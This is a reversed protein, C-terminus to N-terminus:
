LFKNNNSPNLLDIFSGTVSGCIFSAGLIFGIPLPITENILFNVKTKNDSNQIGIMIMLFLLSNLLLHFLVKFYITKMYQIM